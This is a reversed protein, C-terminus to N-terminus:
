VLGRVNFLPTPYDIVKTSINKEISPASFKEKNTLFIMPESKYNKEFKKQKELSLLNLIRQEIIFIKVADEIELAEKYDYVVGGIKLKWWSILM